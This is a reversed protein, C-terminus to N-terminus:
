SAGRPRAAPPQELMQAILNAYAHGGPGGIPMHVGDAYFWGPNAAALGEWEAVTCDPVQRCGTRILENNAPVWSCYPCYNTVMVLRRGAALAVIRDLQIRSFPGNTGLAIVVTDGLRGSWALGLMAEIGVTVQRGAVADVTLG